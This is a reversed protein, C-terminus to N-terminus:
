QEESDYLHDPCVKMAIRVWRKDASLFATDGQLYIFCDSDGLDNPQPAFETACGILYETYADIYPSVLPEAHRYEEETPHRFEQEVKLFARCFSAIVFARRVKSSRLKAAFRAGQVKNLHICSGMARAAKYGKIEDDLADVVKDHFDNWQYGRWTRALPVNVKRIVREQFDKVGEELETPMAARAIAMFAQRWDVALKAPNLGWLTALHYECDDAVADAHDVVAQAALRRERITREDILSAIELFSTPTALLRHGGCKLARPDRRGAGIDYWVNTDAIVDM